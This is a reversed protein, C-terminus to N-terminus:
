AYSHRGGLVFNVGFYTIVVSLFALLLYLHLTRERRFMPLSGGHLAFAYVLLTILAWVEKPDWAWYRGWSQNAWVAGIFIGASLLFVAPFLLLRNLTTLAPVESLSTKRGLLWLAYGSNMAILAFLAYSLMVVTVHVSLLPSALVPMLSTIQPNQHSLHAVLLAFGAILFGFPQVMPLRRALLLALTLAFIALLLMTEPGNSMPVYGAIIWRTAFIVLLLGLALCLVARQLPPWWRWRPRLVMAVFSCLGLTLLAMFSWRIPTSRNYLLELTIHWDSLRAEPQNPPVREILTGKHLMFILGVKEDVEQIARALPSGSPERLLFGQLRYTTGRYLDTLAARKGKIGLRHRLAESKVEIMPVNQWQNPYLLTSLLVQEATLGRFSARGTIKTCFDRALTNLPAVRGNYVVQARAFSDAQARSVVPLRPSDNALAPPTLSLFLMFGTAARQLSPHSLLRRFSERPDILMWLMAVLLLLYGAYTLPTGWPDYNVALVTGQEDTDYSSQYFRYGEHTGIANMAVLMPTGDVVLHSEYDRPTTTGAYHLVRFDNLRVVFPLPLQKGQETHFTTSSQGKRLHLMGEHSTLATFLAGALIVIFSLHLLLAAPRRVLKRLVWLGSLAIAGWLARFAWTGYIYAYATPTGWQHEVLTAAVLVAVMLALLM